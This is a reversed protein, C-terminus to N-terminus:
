AQWPNVVPGAGAPVDRYLHRVWAADAASLPEGLQAAAHVQAPRRLGLLVCAGPSDALLAGTLAHLVPQPHAAFRREVARRCRRFHALLVPDGFAAMNRRHDGEGFVPATEYLGLLLGHLLPSFFVAGRDNAEVWGKLGSAAYDDDLVTRHLQVVDPDVRGAYREILGANWDSLGISRIKGEERARRFTEVAGDLYRDGPGFECRHFYYLDIWETALNRLSSELQARIQRPEYAHGASGAVWGVKSALFLDRRPLLRWLGGILREAQGHGYVDATDWHTIGAAHAALLAATAERDDHGSWGVPLDGAKWAGGHGWTGLGIAPVAAGGRGLRVRM